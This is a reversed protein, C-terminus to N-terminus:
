TKQKLFAEPFIKVGAHDDTPPSLDRYIHRNGKDINIRICLNRLLGKRANLCEVARTLAKSPLMLAESHKFVFRYRLGHRGTCVALADEWHSLRDGFERMKVVHAAAEEGFVSLPFRRGGSNVPVRSAPPDVPPTFDSILSASRLASVFRFSLSYNSAVFRPCLFFNFSSLVFEICAEVFLLM